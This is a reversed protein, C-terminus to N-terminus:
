VECFTLVMVWVLFFDQHVLVLVLSLELQVVYVSVVSFIFQSLHWRKIAVCMALDCWGVRLGFSPLSHTQGVARGFRGVFWRVFLVGFRYCANPEIAPKTTLDLATGRNPM